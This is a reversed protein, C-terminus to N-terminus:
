SSSMPHPTGHILILIWPNPYWFDLPAPLTADLSSM